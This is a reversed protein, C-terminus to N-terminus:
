FWASYTLLVQLGKLDFDGVTDNFDMEGGLYRVGLGWQKGAGLDYEIGTRAYYGIILDSSSDDTLIINGDDDFVPDPTEDDNDNDDDGDHEAYILAPGAGLYFDVKSGLHGRLYPGIHGEVILMENDLRFVATGQGNEVRGAFRTDSGKWSVGIGANVGMELGSDKSRYPTEVEFGVALLDSFDIDVPEGSDNQLEGTQDDLLMAGIYVQIRDSGTVVGEASVQQALGLLLVALLRLRM